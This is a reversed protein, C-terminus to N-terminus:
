GHGLRPRARVVPALVAQGADGVVPLPEAKGECEPIPLVGDEFLAREPQGVALAIVALVELLVVEVQIGRRGMGVHLVEVLIRLGGIRIILQHEGVAASAALFGLVFQDVGADEVLVTVEVHEHFVGLFRGLIDQDLDADVIPTGLGRFDM